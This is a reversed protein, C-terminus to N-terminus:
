SYSIVVYTCSIAAIITDAILPNWRHIWMSLLLSGTQVMHYLPRFLIVDDNPIYTPPSSLSSKSQWRTDMEGDVGEQSRFGGTNFCLESHTSSFSFMQERMRVAHIVVLLAAGYQIFCSLTRVCHPSHCGSNGHPFMTFPVQWNVWVDESHSFHQWQLSVMLCSRPIQLAAAHHRLPSCKTSTMVQPNLSRELQCMECSDAAHLWSPAILGQRAILRCCTRVYKWCLSHTQKYGFRSCIESSGRLPM